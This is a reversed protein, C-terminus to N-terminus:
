PYNIKLIDTIFFFNVLTVQKRLYLKKWTNFVHFVILRGNNLSQMASLITLSNKQKKKFLKTDTVCSEKSTKSITFYKPM